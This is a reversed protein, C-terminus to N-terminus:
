AFYSDIAHVENIFLALISDIIYLYSCVFIILASPLIERSGGKISEELSFLIFTTLESLLFLLCNNIKTKSDTFTTVFFQVSLGVFCSLFYICVSLNRVYLREIVFTNKFRNLSTTQMCDSDTVM